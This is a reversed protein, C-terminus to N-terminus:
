VDAMSLHPARASAHERALSALRRSHWEHEPKAALVPVDDVSSACVSRLDFYMEAFLKASVHCDFRLVRLLCTEMQSFDKVNPATLRSDHAARWLHPFSANDIPVDDELKQAVM